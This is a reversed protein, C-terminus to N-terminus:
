GSARVAVREGSIRVEFTPLAFTAPGEVVSGDSLSFRAGHWPCRVCSGEREGEDLPAGRHSCIASIASVHGSEPERSLIIPIGSAEVRLWGDKPIDDLAAVDTFEDPPTLPAGTHRVGLHMGTSLEGGLYGGLGIFAYGVFAAAIGLRRRKARRLIASAQYAIMATGNLLAHAMGVRRPRESTDSWDSWGTVIAAYASAIGLGLTIDAAASVDAIGGLDSADLVALATFAGIPIDTLIPHLSHGIWSGSLASKVSPNADRARRIPPQIVDAVTDLARANAISSVIGGSAVFEPNLM